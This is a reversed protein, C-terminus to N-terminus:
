EGHGREQLRQFWSRRALWEPPREQLHQFWLWSDLVEGVTQRFLLLSVAGLWFAMGATPLLGAGFSLLLGIAFLVTASALQALMLVLSRAPSIVLLGALALLAWGWPEVDGFPRYAIFLRELNPRHLCVLGFALHCGAIILRPHLLANM